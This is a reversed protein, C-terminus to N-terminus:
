TRKNTQPLSRLAEVTARANNVANKSRSLIKASVDSVGGLELVSRVAGGAKIGRGPAPMMLIESACYKQQVEHPISREENLPIDIMNSKADRFAKEIALATDSAKGLGVGVKGSRNGAVLCVSFSFRRGGAMVRTVRRMGVIKQDYEPRPRNSERRQRRKGGQENKKQGGGQTRQSESSVSTETPKNSTTQKEQTPM